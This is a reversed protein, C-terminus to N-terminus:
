DLRYPTDADKEHRIEDVEDQKLWGAYLRNAGNFVLGDKDGVNKYAHVIGPPVILAYPANEGVERVEKAGFSPSGKRADWLYVRFTSPGIFCFYDSQDTHEHPGRAVAPRTLSVYAMEPRYKPDILDNRFLEVLWGRPDHYFKLPIWVVDRIPGREAFKPLNVNM